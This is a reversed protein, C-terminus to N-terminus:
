EKYWPPLSAGVKGWFVMTATHYRLIDADTLNVTSFRIDSIAGSNSM